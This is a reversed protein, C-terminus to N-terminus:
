YIEDCTKEATDLKAKTKATIDQVRADWLFLRKVNEANNRYEGNKDITNKIFRAFKRWVTEEAAYITGAHKVNGAGEWEEETIIENEKIEKRTLVSIQLM